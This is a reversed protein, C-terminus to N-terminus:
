GACGRWGSGNRVGLRRLTGLVGAEVACGSEVRFPVDPVEGLEVLLDNLVEGGRLAHVQLDGDLDAGALLIAVGVVLGADHRLVSSGELELLIAELIV